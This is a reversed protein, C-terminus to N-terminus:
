LSLRAYKQLMQLSLWRHCCPLALPSPLFSPLAVLGAWRAGFSADWSRLTQRQQQVSAACAPSSRPLFPRDQQRALRCTPFHCSLWTEGREWNWRWMRGSMIISVITFHSFAQKFCSVRLLLKNNTDVRLDLIALQPPTIIRRRPVIMMMQELACSSDM